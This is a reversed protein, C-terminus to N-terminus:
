KKFKKDSEVKEKKKDAERKKAEKKKQTPTKKANNKPLSRESSTTEEQDEDPVKRRRNLYCFCTTCFCLFVSSYCIALLTTTTWFGQEDVTFYGFLLPEVRQIDDGAEITIPSDPSDKDLERQLKKENISQQLMQTNAMVVNKDEENAIIMVVSANVVICNSGTPIGDQCTVDLMTDISASENLYAVTLRRRERVGGTVIRKPKFVEQALADM